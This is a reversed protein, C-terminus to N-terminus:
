ELDQKEIELDMRKMFQEYEPNRYGRFVIDNIDEQNFVYNAQGSGLYGEPYLVGLYDYGKGDYQPKLGIIMLKKTAEKLLVVSGIALLEQFM